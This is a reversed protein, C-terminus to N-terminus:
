VAIILWAKILHSFRDARKHRRCSTVFKIKLTVLQFRRLHCSKYNNHWIFIYIILHSTQNQKHTLFVESLTWVEASILGHCWQRHVKCTDCPSQQQHTTVRLTLYLILTFFLKESILEKTLMARPARRCTSRLPVSGYEATQKTVATLPSSRSSFQAAQGPGVLFISQHTFVHM